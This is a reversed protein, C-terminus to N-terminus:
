VNGNETLMQAFEAPVSRALRRMLRLGVERQGDEFGNQFADPLILRDRWIGCDTLVAYVWERGLTTAM